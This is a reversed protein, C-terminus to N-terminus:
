MVQLSSANSEQQKTDLQKLYLYRKGTERALYMAGIGILLHALQVLWHLNGVLISSQTMGFAVMLLTYLISGVGFLRAGKAFIAITGLVLLAISGVLGLLIHIGTLNIQTLINLFPYLFPIQAIWLLLGLLVTIMFPIRVTMSIIAVAKM